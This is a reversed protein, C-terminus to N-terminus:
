MEMPQDGNEKKCKSDSGLNPEIFDKQDLADAEKLKPSNEKSSFKLDINLLEALGLLFDRVFPIKEVVARFKAKRDLLKLFDTVLKRIAGDVPAAAKFEALEADRQDAIAKLNQIQAALSEKDMRSVKGAHGAAYRKAENEVFESFGEDVLNKYGSELLLEELVEDAADNIQWDGPMRGQDEMAKKEAKSLENMTAACTPKGMRELALQSRRWTRLGPGSSNLNMATRRYRIREKGKGKKFIVKELGTHWLNWHPLDSDWHISLGVVKRGTVEEFKAVIRPISNVMLKRVEDKCGAALLKAMARALAPHANVTARAMEYATRVEVVKEDARCGDVEDDRDLLEAPLMGETIKVKTAIPVKKWQGRGEAGSGWCHYNLTEDRIMRLLAKYVKPNLSSTLDLDNRLPAINSSPAEPGLEADGSTKRGRRERGKSRKFERYKAIQSGAAYSALSGSTDWPEPRLEEARVVPIGGFIFYVAEDKGFASFDNQFKLENSIEVPIWDVQSVTRHEQARKDREHQWSSVDDHEISEDSCSGELGM